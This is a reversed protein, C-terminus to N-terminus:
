EDTQETNDAQNNKRAYIVFLFSMAFGVCLLLVSIVWYWPSTPLQAVTLGSEKMTSVFVTPISGIIFGLIAFYTNRPYKNLLFKMLKSIAFFGVVIGLGVCALVAIAIGVNNGKLLNDTLMRVIPNYYGLILLLMSGSIGPVVLAMSGIMGVFFLIIYGVFNINILDVDSAVPIFSLSIAILLPIFLSLCNFVNPKGQIKVTISPIGGLALGVFLCVTPIPYASLAWKLPFLLAVIGIIMGIAVPLLTLVSKKFQKFIDAIAGVLEDYVGIIAAVSGGSFGPIIFAIGILIGALLKKFFLKVKNEKTISNDM